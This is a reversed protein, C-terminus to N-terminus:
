FSTTVGFFPEVSSIGSNSSASSGVGSSHSQQNNNPMLSNALLEQYASAIPLTKIEELYQKAFALPNLLMTIPGAMKYHQKSGVHSNYAPLFKSLNAREKDYVYQKIPKGKTLLSYPDVANAFIRLFLGVVMEMFKAKVLIGSKLFAGIIAEVFQEGMAFDGTVAAVNKKLTPKPVKKYWKPLVSNAVQNHYIGVKRVGGRKVPIGGVGTRLVTAGTKTRKKNKLMLKTEQPSKNVNDLPWILASSDQQRPSQCEFVGPNSAVDSALLLAQYANVQGNCEAKGELMPNFTCTDVLIQRIQCPRLSPYKQLILTAIGAVIPSAYSTGSRSSYTPNSGSLSTTFIATGPAFVQVRTEGYNSFSSITGDSAIAGVSIVNDLENSLAAPYGANGGYKDLCPVTSLVDLNCRENGASLVFLCHPNSEFTSREANSLSGGVSLNITRIGKSLVYNVGALESSVSGSVTAPLVRCNRCIGAIGEGNNTTATACGAVKTGHSYGSLDNSKSKVNWGHCDNLLGNRDEDVSNAGNVDCNEAPNYWWRDYLDPHFEMFGFDVIGITNDPQEAVSGNGGETIKWAERAMVSYPNSDNLHWQTQFQPDNPLSQLARLGVRTMEGPHRTSDAERSAVCDEESLREMIEEKGFRECEGELSIVQLGVHKLWTERVMCGEQEEGKDNTQIIAISSMTSLNDESKPSRRVRIMGGGVGGLAGRNTGEVAAKVSRGVLNYRSGEELCGRKYTVLITNNPTDDAAVIRVVTLLVIMFLLQLVSSAQVAM